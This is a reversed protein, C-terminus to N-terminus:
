LVCSSFGLPLIFIVISVPQFEWQWQQRPLVLDSSLWHELISEGEFGACSCGQLTQLLWGFKTSRTTSGLSTYSLTYSITITADVLILLKILKYSMYLYCCTSVIFKFWIFLFLGISYLMSKIINYALLDTGFTFVCNLCCCFFNLFFNSSSSLNTLM